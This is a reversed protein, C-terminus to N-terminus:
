SVAPELLRITGASADMEAQVGLPLSYQNAVHGFQGGQFAPIGLPELHQQLVESLTFGGYSPGAAGGSFLLRSDQRLWMFRRPAGRGSARIERRWRASAAGTGVMFRVRGAGAPEGRRAEDRGRAGPGGRRAEGGRPRERRLGLDDLDPVVANHHRLQDLRKLPDEVRRRRQM